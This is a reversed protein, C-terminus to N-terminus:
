PTEYVTEWATDACNDTRLKVLRELKWNALREAHDAHAKFSVRDYSRYLYLPHQATGNDCFNLTTFDFLNNAMVEYIYFYEYHTTSLYHDERTTPQFAAVPDVERIYTTERGAPISWNKTNTMASIASNITVPTTDCSGGSYNNTPITINFKLTMNIDDYDITCGCWFNLYYDSRSDGASLAYNYAVRYYSYYEPDADTSALYTAYDADAQISAINAKYKNYDTVDTFSLTIDDTGRSISITEGAALNIYNYVGPGYWLWNNYESDKWLLTGNVPNTDVSNSVGNYTTSYRMMLYKYVFTTNYNTAVGVTNYTINYWCNVADYAIAPTSDIKYIDSNFFTFDLDSVNMHQLKIIWNTNTNSPDLVSGVIEIRLYNGAVYIYPTIDTIFKIIGSSGTQNLYRPNNPYDVPYLETTIYGGSGNEFGGIFNDILTGIPDLETCYYIKIQEAVRYATLEWALYDMGPCILYKLKRSKDVGVDTINNYTLKFNPYNADGGYLTSCEIATVVVPDLCVLLDPSYRSGTEWEATYKNGDIYVYRIVPYLTGAFVVEDVLPHNEQINPDFTKDSGSVFQTVGSPSGLNWEIVYHGLTGSTLNLSGCTLFMLGDVPEPNFYPQYTACATYELETTVTIINSNASTDIAKYARLRYYYTTNDTLTDIQYTLVLGVNLNQYGMVYSTFLNDYAVDLYYGDAVAVSEWNAYFSSTTVSTAATAVPAALYGASTIHVDRIGINISM